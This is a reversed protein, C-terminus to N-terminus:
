SHTQKEAYRVLRARIAEVGFEDLTESAPDGPTAEAYGRGALGTTRGGVATARDFDALLWRGGVSVINNPAVDCHVLRAGHLADLAEALTKDLSRM